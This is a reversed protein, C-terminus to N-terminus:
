INKVKFSSPATLVFAAAPDKIENNFDYLNIQLSAAAHEIAITRKSGERSIWRINIGSQRDKCDLLLGRTDSVCSWTKSEIPRDFFVNYLYKPEIPIKFIGRLSERNAKSKYVTKEAVNLYQINDSSMVVSAVHAGVPSTVDMRLNQNDIARIKVNLLGSRKEKKDKILVKGQWEGQSYKSFNKPAFLACGSFVFVSLLIFIYKM